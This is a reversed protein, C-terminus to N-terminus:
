WASSPSIAGVRNSVENIEWSSPETGSDVTYYLSKATAIYLKDQYVFANTIPTNGPIQLLGTVGDFASYNFAYSGRMQTGVVPLTDPIIMLDQVSVTIGTPVGTCYFRLLSDSPIAAPLVEFTSGVWSGATTLTRADLSASVYSTGGNLIDM